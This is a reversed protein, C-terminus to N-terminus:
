QGEPLLYWSLSDVNSYINSSIMFGNLMWKGFRGGEDSTWTGM